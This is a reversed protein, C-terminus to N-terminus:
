NRTTPIERTISILKKIYKVHEFYKFILMKLTYYYKFIFYIIYIIIM